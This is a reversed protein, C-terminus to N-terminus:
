DGEKEGERGIGKGAEGGEVREEERREGKRKGVGSWDGGGGPIYFANAKFEKHIFTLPNRM